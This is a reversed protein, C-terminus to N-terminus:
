KRKSCAVYFEIKHDPSARCDIAASIKAKDRSESKRCASDQVELTRTQAWCLERHSAPNGIKEKKVYIMM